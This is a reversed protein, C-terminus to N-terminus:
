LSGCKRGGREHVRKIFKQAPAIKCAKVDPQMDPDDQEMIQNAGYSNSDVM